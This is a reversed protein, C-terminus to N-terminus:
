LSFDDESEFEARLSQAFQEFTDGLESLVEGSERDVDVWRAPTEAIVAYDWDEGAGFVVAGPAVKAIAAERSRELATTPHFLKFYPGPQGDATLLRGNFTATTRWLAVLDAPLTLGLTEELHAIDDTTAPSDLDDPPFYGLSAM